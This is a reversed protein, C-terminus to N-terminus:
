GRSLVAKNLRYFTGHQKDDPVLEFVGELVVPEYSFPVPTEPNVEIILSPGVHYHDPCDPMFPGFLFQKQEPADELPFMYGKILVKRGNLKEVAPSFEPSIVYGTFGADDTYPTSKEKTQALIKWDLGGRPVDIAANIENALKAPILTQPAPEESYLWGGWAAAVLVLLVIRFDLWKPLKKAKAM